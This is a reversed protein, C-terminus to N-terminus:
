DGSCESIDIRCIPCTSNEKLWRDICQMHYNHLCPLMRLLEGETYDSFCIQCQTKGASHAPDYTKTPLREIERESLTKKAVVAGQGEEFALLAEYNDGQSDDFLSSVVHRPNRRRPTRSRGRGRRRGMLEEELGAVLPSFAAYNVASPWPSMWNMGLHPDYPYNHHPRNPAMAEQQRRQEQQLQEERDFQEQLSRAFAEDEKLQVARVVAEVIVDDDNDGIVVEDYKPSMAEATSFPVEWGAVHSEKETGPLFSVSDTTLNTPARAFTSASKTSAARKCTRKRGRNYSPLGPEVTSEAVPAQSSTNRCFGEGATVEQSAPPAGLSSSPPSSSYSCPMSSPLPPELWTVLSSDTTMLSSAAVFGSTAWSTGPKAEGRMSTAPMSLKKRKSMQHSTPTMILSKDEQSPPPSLSVSGFNEFRNYRQRRRLYQPSPTELIVVPPENLTGFESLDGFLLDQEDLLCAQNLPGTTDLEELDQLPSRPELNELTRDMDVFISSSAQTHDM